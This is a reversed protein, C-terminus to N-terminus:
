AAGRLREIVQGLMTATPADLAELRCGVRLNGPRVPTVSTVRAAAELTGEFFRCHLALLDGPALRVDDARFGVSAPSLDVLDARFEHRDPLRDCSLAHLNGTVTLAVREEGRRAGAPDVETVRMQVSARKETRYGADEVHAAVLYPLGDIMLEATLRMGQHVQLRPASGNVTAGECAITWVEVSNGEDDVMDLASEAVLADAVEDPTPTPVPRELASM